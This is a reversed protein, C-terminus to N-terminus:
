GLKGPGRDIAAVQGVTVGGIKVPAQKRLQGVQSFRAKLEYGQSGWSWRQNTSAVALVMLSALALLLFAGVSFELRPGRIAMHIVQDLRLPRARVFNFMLVLLSANVVARTTAVSTGEITPEAHFGVYAAGLAATGGFSASTLM